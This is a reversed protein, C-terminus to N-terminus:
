IKMHNYSIPNIMQVNFISFPDTACLGDMSRTAGYGLEHYFILFYLIKNLIIYLINKTSYNM